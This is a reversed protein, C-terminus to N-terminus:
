VHLPRQSVCMTVNTNHKVPGFHGEKLGSKSCGEKLNNIGIFTDGEPQYWRIGGHPQQRQWILAGGGGGIEATPCTQFLM